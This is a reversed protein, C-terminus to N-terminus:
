GRAAAADMRLFQALLKEMTTHREREHLWQTPALNVARVVMDLPGVDLVNICAPAQEMRGLYCRQGALAYSLLGRNISEDVVERIKPDRIRIFSSIYDAYDDILADRLDFVNM